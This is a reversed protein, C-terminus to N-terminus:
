RVEVRDPFIIELKTTTRHPASKARWELVHPMTGHRALAAEDEWEEVFTLLDPDTVSAFLDYRRCGPEQRTGEICPLAAAIVAEREGPKTHLTAVLYLM